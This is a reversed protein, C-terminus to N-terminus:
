LLDFLTQLLDPRAGTDSVAALVVEFAARQRPDLDDGRIARDLLDILVDGEGGQAPAFANPERLRWRLLGAVLIPLYYQNNGFGESLGQRLSMQAVHAWRDITDADLIEFIEDNRSLLFGACAQQDRTWDIDLSNLYDIAAGFAEKNAATRGLAQPYMIRWGFFSPPGGGDKLVRLVVPLTAAPCLRFSWSLVGLAHNNQVNGSTFDAEAQGIVALLRDWDDDLVGPPRGGDSDVAYFPRDHDPHKPQDFYVRRRAALAKYVPTYNKGDFDRLASALGGRQHPYWLDRHAPLIVREPIVPPRVKFDSIIKEWDRGYPDHEGADWDVIAPRERLFPWTESTIRLKARGQAPQQELYLHVEEDRVPGVPVTAPSMRPDPDDDKKLWVKMSTSGAQWRLTIPRRSRWTKGAEVVENQGVLSLSDAEDRDQVITKVDPLCDYWPPLGQQVRMAVRFAGDAVASPDAVDITKNLARQLLARIADLLEPRCPGQLVVQDAGEFFAGIDTDDEIGPATGVAEIWDGNELRILESGQAGPASMALLAPLDALGLAHAVRPTGADARVRELCVREREALGLSTGVLRGITRRRPTLLADREVIDLTQLRLGHTDLEITGLKQGGHITKQECRQLALAVSSWVLMPRRARLARMSRLRKERAEETMRPLDPIALVAIRAEQGLEQMCSAWAEPDDSRRILVRRDVDGFDGWGGGKGHMAFRARPGGVRPLDSPAKGDADGVHVVRSVTGGDIPHGEPVAEDSGDGGRRWNRVARDHWGNMDLGLLRNKM